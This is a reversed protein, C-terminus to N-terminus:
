LGFRPPAKGEAVQKIWFASRPASRYKGLWAPLHIMALGFEGLFRVAARLNEGTISRGRFRSLIVLAIHKPLRWLIQLSSAGLDFCSIVRSEWRRALKEPSPLPRSPHQVIAEPVFHVPVGQLALRAFFEMDEFSIRFREDFGGSRLFIERPIAFNCSPPLDHASPNHPAEWLLSDKQADSRLIPGALAVSASPGMASRYAALLGPEPLCDDDLFILWEGRADQAGVNRNAGPGIQPGTLWRVAPFEKELPHPRASGDDCVILEVSADNEMQPELLGLCRRLDEPRNCTPIILSIQPTASPNM